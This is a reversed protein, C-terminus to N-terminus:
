AGTIARMGQLDIAGGGLKRRVYVNAFGPTTVTDVQTALTVVGDVVVYGRPNGFIVSTNGSGVNPMEEMLVVPYGFLNNNPNTANALNQDGFQYTGDARKLDMILAFTARNMIWAAGPVYQSKLAYTMKRLTEVDVASGATAIKTQSEATSGDVYTLLGEPEGVGTGNVFAQNERHAFAERIEAQMIALVDVSAEELLFLSIQPLAYIENLQIDGREWRPVDTSTRADLEQAFRAEAHATKRARRYASGAISRVTAFQRFPSLERALQTVEADQVPEPVLIGGESAVITNATAKSEMEFRAMASDDGTRLFHRLATKYEPQADLKEAERDVMTSRNLAAKTETVDAQLSDFKEQLNKATEANETKAAERQDHMTQKVEELLSKLKEDM